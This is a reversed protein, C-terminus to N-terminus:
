GKTVAWKTRDGRGDGTGAGEVGGAGESASRGESQSSVEDGGGGGGRHLRSGGQSGAGLPV